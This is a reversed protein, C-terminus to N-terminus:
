DCLLQLENDKLMNESVHYSFRWPKAETEATVSDSFQAIGTLKYNEKIM